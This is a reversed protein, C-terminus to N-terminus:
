LIVQTAVGLIHALLLENGEDLFGDVFSGRFIALEVEEQEHAELFSIDVPYIFM